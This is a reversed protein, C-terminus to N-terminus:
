GDSQVIVLTGRCWRGFWNPLGLEEIQKRLETKTFPHSRERQDIDSMASEDRTAIVRKFWESGYVGSAVDHFPHLSPFSVEYLACSVWLLFQRVPFERDALELRALPIEPLFKSIEAFSSYLGHGQKIRWKTLDQHEFWNFLDSNEDQGPELWVRSLVQRSLPGLYYEGFAEVSVLWAPPKPVKISSSHVLGASTLYAQVAEDKPPQSEYLRAAISSIQPGWADDFHQGKGAITFRAWRSVTAEADQCQGSEMGQNLLANLRNRPDRYLDFLETASTETDNLPTREWFNFLSRFIADTTRRPLPIANLIRLSLSVYKSSTGTRARTKELLDTVIGQAGRDYKEDACQVIVDALVSSSDREYAAVVEEALKEMSSTRRVIEEASFYEMFTRHTFGFIREGRDTTGQSTLLWARDACFDLFAQSRRGAETEEVSGTDTFFLSIVKRLQGEEVGGQASQSRYFFYALDQMLRTGYQRHDMPQEIQRMSDWRQFLLDACSKYVDRRNHPIYGRARYLACLLSLMLPNICVDPISHSERLFADRENEGRGTVRFWKEAYQRVQEESFDDLEYLSFEAPRLPAKQYGVRRATVLIPSLPYRVAFLEIARVFAHRRGIDIIEDVGDFVVFARGLTLIDNVAQQEVELQLNERLSRTVSEIIYNSSDAGALDRCQVVLPAFDKGDPSDISCLKHVVHQVMTSKGVGPNGIVVCRPRNVPRALFDDTVVAGSNVKRLNRTVYLVGGDFRFSEQLHGLTHALNVESYFEASASRIDYLNNRVAEFRERNGAIDVLDRFAVNAPRRYGEILRTAGVYSSLRSQEDATVYASLEDFPFVADVSRRLLEWLEPALNEWNYNREYCYGDVLSYFADGFEEVIRPFADDTRIGFKAILLFQILATCEPSELLETVQLVQDQTLIAISDGTEPDSLVWGGRHDVAEEWDPFSSQSNERQDSSSSGTLSQFSKKVIGGAFRGAMGAM